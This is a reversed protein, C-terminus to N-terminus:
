TNIIVGSALEMSPRARNTRGVLYVAKCKINTVCQGREMSSRGRHTHVALYVAQYTISEINYLKSVYFNKLIELTYKISM